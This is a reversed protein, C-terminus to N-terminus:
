KDSPDTLKTLMTKISNGAESADIGVDQMKAAMAVADELSFGFQKAIPSISQMSEGLSGITSKTRSSALALVDAVRATESSELQLGKMISAVHDSVEAIEMGAAASASLIGPIGAMIQQTTFGAQAMIEMGNAAETATFKTTRGLELAQNKLDVLAEKPALSLDSSRRTPF